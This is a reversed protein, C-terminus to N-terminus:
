KESIAYRLSVRGGEISGSNKVKKCWKVALSTVKYATSSPETTNGRYASSGKDQTGVNFRLTKDNNCLVM